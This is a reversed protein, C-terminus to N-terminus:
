LLKIALLIMPVKLKLEILMHPEDWPKVPPQSTAALSRISSFLILLLAIDLFRVSVFLTASM